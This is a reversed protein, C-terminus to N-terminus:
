TLALSLQDALRQLEPLFRERLENRTTRSAHASLNIAGVCRLNRGVVPVAIARLGRELEEDVISFGQEGDAKIREVLAAPDLITASTFPTLKVSKLRRWIEDEDLFALQIRGSASHFAPLRTGPAAASAMLRRPAPAGAVHIVETGQLVAASCSEHLAESLARMLPEARDIWSQSSLFAFGIELVRPALVFDRGDQAAYGLAVLTRLIRRAAARSLGTTAAAESLTMKPRQEGFATLVALGRALTEVFERDREPLATSDDAGTTLASKATSVREPRLSFQRM